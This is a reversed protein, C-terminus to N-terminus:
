RCSEISDCIPKEYPSAAHQLGVISGVVWHNLSLRNSMWCETGMALPALTESVQVKTVVLSRNQHKPAFPMHLRNNIAPAGENQLRDGGEGPHNEFRSRRHISVTPM